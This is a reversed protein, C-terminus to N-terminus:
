TETRCWGSQLRIWKVGLDKLEDYVDKPDFLNRDLKELGIGLRSTRVENSRVTKVKGTQRYYTKM